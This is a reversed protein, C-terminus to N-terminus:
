AGRHKFHPKMWASNIFCSQLDRVHFLSDYLISNSIIVTYDWQRGPSPPAFFGETFCHRPSILLRRRSRAPHFLCPTKCHVLFFHSLPRRCLPFRPNIGHVWGSHYTSITSILTSRTQRFEPLQPACPSAWMHRLTSPRGSGHSVADSVTLSAPSPGMPALWSVPSAMVPPQPLDTNAHTIFFVSVDEYTVNQLKLLTIQLASHKKKKIQRM